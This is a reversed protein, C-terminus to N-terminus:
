SSAEEPATLPLRILDPAAQERAIRLGETIHTRYRGPLTGWTQTAPNWMGLLSGDLSMYYLGIRGVRLFDVERAEGDVDLMGRYAEITRGYEMETQYADFVARFKEAVTVDSRAIMDKLRAVRAAREEPLFPVDLEVHQALADIMKLMLPTIQREILTVNAISRDLERVEADQSELQLDLQRIYVELGEIQKELARYEAVKDQIQESVSDIRQQADRSADVREEGRDLAADIDEAAAPAALTFVFLFIVALKM